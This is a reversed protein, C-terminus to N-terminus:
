ALGVFETRDCEWYRNSDPYDVARSWRYAM